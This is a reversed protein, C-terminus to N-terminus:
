VASKCIKKSNFVEPNWKEKIATNLMAKANKVHCRQIQIDVSKIANTLVDEATNKVFRQAAQRSFGYELIRDIIVNASRLEKSLVLAKEAQSKELHTKKNILWEIAVVKRSDKKQTYDVDYETKANIEIKAKEIVKRKLNFYEKYEEKEIGCYARLDEVSIERKGIPSYQVLLEFMRIAYISKLKLTDVLDIKTFHSKLQLLYPKLEPDFKLSVLGRNTEYRASSLWSVQLWEKKEPEYISLVRKMLTETVKRLEQYQADVEVGVMKAFESIKMTHLKFDEDDPRIQTLLWLVVHSEQLSLRYRAEVLSNSKVIFTESKPNSNDVM